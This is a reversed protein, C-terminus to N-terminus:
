EFEDKAVKLMAQEVSFLLRRRNDIGTVGGNIRRTLLTFRGQDALANCERTIWFWNGARVAIDPQEVLEPQEELPLDLFRGCMRYNYRGTLMPLGRGRFRAGDGPHSNGLDRRGEYRTLYKLNGMERLVRFGATEHGWQALYCAAGMVDIDHSGTGYPGLDNMSSSVTLRGDKERQTFHAAKVPRGEARVFFFIGGDDDKAMGADPSREPRAAIPEDCTFIAGGIALWAHIRVQRGSVQEVLYGMSKEPQPKIAETIMFVRKADEGPISQLQQTKAFLPLKFLKDSM